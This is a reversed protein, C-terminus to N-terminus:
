SASPPAYRHTCAAPRGRPPHRRLDRCSVARCSDRALDTGKESWGKQAPCHACRALSADGRDRALQGGCAAARNGRRIRPKLKSTTRPLDVGARLPTSIPLQPYSYPVPQSPAHRVPVRAFWREGSRVDRVRRAAVQAVEGAAHFCAAAEPAAMGAPGGGGGGGGSGGGGDDDGGGGGRSYPARRGPGSAIGASAWRTM